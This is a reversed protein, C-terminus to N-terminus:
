LWHFKSAVFFFIGVGGDQLAHAIMGPKTSRRMVALIGFLSGYIAIIAAEKPGQYIHCAGFILSSMIVGVTASGTWGSFQRLVYGRFITEECIGATLAVVVWVCVQLPTAPLMFRTQDIAGSSHLLNASLALVVLAVLQFLCAIGLDRLFQKGNLWRPGTLDELTTGHRRIGFYLYLFILWEIVLISLYLLMHNPSTELRMRAATQKGFYAWVALIALLGLAHPLSAVVTRPYRLKQIASSQSNDATVDSASNEVSM